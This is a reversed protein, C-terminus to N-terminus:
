PLVGLIAALDGYARWGGELLDLRRSRMLALDRRANLVRILELKGARFAADTSRVLGEAAPIGTRDLDTVAAGTRSIEEHLGRVAADVARLVAERDARARSAQASARAVEGENQHIVPFSWGLGGGIRIQGFEDQGGTVLFELPTWRNAKAVDIERSWFAQEREFAEVAPSRALAAGGLGIQPRAEPPLSAADAPPEGIDGIGTLARLDAEAAVLSIQAEAVSQAHRALETQALSRDVATADGAQVRAEFWALENRAQEEAQSALDVRARSVVARGFAEIAAGGARGQAATQERERWALLADASRIRAGRQGNIEIPLGLQGVAALGPSAGPPTHGVGHDATVVLTPNRFSPERANVGESRAVLTEGQARISEPARDFSARWVAELTPWAAHAPGAAMFLLAGVAGQALSRGL